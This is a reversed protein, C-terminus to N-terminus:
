VPSQWRRCAYKSAFDNTTLEHKQGCTNSENKGKKKLCKQGSKRIEMVMRAEEMMVLVAFRKFGIKRKSLNVKEKWLSVKEEKISKRMYIKKYGRKKSLKGPPNCYGKKKLM